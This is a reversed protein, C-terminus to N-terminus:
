AATIRARSIAEPHRPRGDAALSSFCAFAHELLQQLPTPMLQLQRHDIEVAHTEPRMVQDVRHADIALAALVHQADLEAPRLVGRGNFVQQDSQALM